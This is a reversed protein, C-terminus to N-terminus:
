GVEDDDRQDRQNEVKGGGKEEGDRNLRQEPQRQQGHFVKQRAQEVANGRPQVATQLVDRRPRTRADFVDPEGAELGQEDIREDGKNGVKQYHQELRIPVIAQDM